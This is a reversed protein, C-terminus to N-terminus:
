FQDTAAFSTEAYAGARLRGLMDNVEREIQLVNERHQVVRDGQRVSMGPVTASGVNDESRVLMGSEALRLECLKLLVGGSFSDPDVATDNADAALTSDTAAHGDNDLDGVVWDGFLDYCRRKGASVASRVVGALMEDTVVQSASDLRSGLADRLAAIITSFETAAM